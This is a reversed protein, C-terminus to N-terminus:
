VDLGLREIESLAKEAQPLEHLAIQHSRCRAILRKACTTVSKVVERQSVTARKERRPSHDDCLVVQWLHPSSTSEFRVSFPGDFFCVEAVASGRSKKIVAELWGNLGGEILDFWGQEPFFVGGVRVYINGWIAGSKAVTISTVDVEISFASSDADKHEKAQVM